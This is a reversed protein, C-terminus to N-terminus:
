KLNRLGFRFKEPHLCYYGFSQKWRALARKYEILDTEDNTVPAVKAEKKPDLEQKEEFPVYIVGKFDPTIMKKSETL